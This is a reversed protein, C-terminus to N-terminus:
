HATYRAVFMDVGNRGVVVARNQSDMGLGIDVIGKSPNAVVTRGHDGYGDDPQGDPRLRYLAHEALAVVAHDSQVAIHIPTFVDGPRAYGNTGFTPDVRGEPDVRGVVTENDFPTAAFVIAGNDPQRALDGTGCFTPGASSCPLLPQDGTGDAAWRDGLEGGAVVLRDDPEVVVDSAGRARVGPKPGGANFTPDLVGKATFAALGGNGAVILRGTSQRAV